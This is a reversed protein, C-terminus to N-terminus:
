SRRLLFNVSRRVSKRVDNRIRWQTRLEPRRDLLARVILVGVCARDALEHVAIAGKEVYPQIYAVLEEDTMESPRKRCDSRAKASRYARYEDM